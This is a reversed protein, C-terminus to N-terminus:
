SSNDNCHNLNIKLLTYINRKQKWKLFNLRSSVTKNNNQTM